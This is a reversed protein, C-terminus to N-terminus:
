SDFPQNHFNKTKMRKIFNRTTPNLWHLLYMLLRQMAALQATNAVGGPVM